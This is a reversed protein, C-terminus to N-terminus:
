FFNVFIKLDICVKELQNPIGLIKIKTQSDGINTEKSFTLKAMKGHSPQM